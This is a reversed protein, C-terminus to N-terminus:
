VFDTNDRTQQHITHGILAKLWVGTLILCVVLGIWRVTGTKFVVTANFIIFLLFGHWAATVAWSRRRYADAGAWWWWAVDLGFLFLVLYNIYLGGSWNLGTTEATQRATDLLAADHSWQHYFQFACILHAFLSACAITWALRARSDLKRSIRPLAFIVVGAVYAAITIWITLRTLFEGTTM